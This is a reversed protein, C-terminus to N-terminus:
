VAISFRLGSTRRARALATEKQGARDIRPRYLRAREIADEVDHRHEPILACAVRTFQALDKDMLEGWAKALAGAGGEKYAKRLKNVELRDLDTLRSTDAPEDDDTM